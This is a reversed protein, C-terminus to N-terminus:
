SRRTANAQTFDDPVDTVESSLLDFVVAKHEPVLYGFVQRPLDDSWGTLKRIRKLLTHGSMEFQETEQPPIVVAQVDDICCSKLLLKKEKTNILLQVQKPSQLAEMVDNGVMISDQMLNLVLCLSRGGTTNTEQSNM